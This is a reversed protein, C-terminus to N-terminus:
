QILTIIYYGIHHSIKVRVNNTTTWFGVVLSKIANQKLIVESETSMDYLCSQKLIIFM